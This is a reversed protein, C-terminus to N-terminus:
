VNNWAENVVPVRLLQQLFDFFVMLAFRQEGSVVLLCLVEGEGELPSLTLTKTKFKGAELRVTSV